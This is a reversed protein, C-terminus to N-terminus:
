ASIGRNAVVCARGLAFYEKGILTLNKRLQEFSNYNTMDVFFVIFDIRPRDSEPLPLITSTRINLVIPWKQTLISRALCKKGAGIAGLFLICVSNPISLPKDQDLQLKPLEPPPTPKTIHGSDPTLVQRFKSM